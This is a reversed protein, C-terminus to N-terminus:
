GYIVYASKPSLLPEYFAMKKTSVVYKCLPISPTLFHCNKSVKLETSPTEYNNPSSYIDFYAYNLFYILSWVPLPIMKAFTCM